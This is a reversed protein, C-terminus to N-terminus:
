PKSNTAAAAVPAVVDVSAAAVVIAVAVVEASVVTPIIGRTDSAVIDLGIIDILVRVTEAEAMEKQTAATTITAVHAPRHQHEVPHLQHRRRDPERVNKNIRTCFYM